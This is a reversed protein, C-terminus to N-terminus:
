ADDGPAASQDLSVERGEWQLPAECRPCEARGRRVRKGCKPCPRSNFRRYLYVIM